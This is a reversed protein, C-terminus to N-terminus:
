QGEGAVVATAVQETGWGEVTVGFIEPLREFIKKQGKKARDAMGGACSRCVKGSNEIERVVEVWDKLADHQLALEKSCVANHQMRRLNASCTAHRACVPGTSPDFLAMLFTTYEHTLTTRGDVCRRLDAESLHEVTGDEHTWGDFLEGGLYACRFLALPLLSPTDTLNALNVVAINLWPDLALPSGPLPNSYTAFSTAFGFEHLSSLAQELVQSVNYKHALRIVASLEDFTRTPNASTTHYHIRSQPLLVRLLLVLDHPSDSVHIVPCGEFTEDPSSTSSAFLDSFVTSQGAILGRYIRFATERAVLVLNGDDYWIEPHRHLNSSSTSISSGSPNSQSDAPGDTAIRARKLPRTNPDAM